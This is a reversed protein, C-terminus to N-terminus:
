LMFPLVLYLVINAIGHSLTVGVLSGTKKVIWGFFVGIAFVFAVDLPSLYGIHLAAFVGAVILWGREGLAEDASRQMVGRFVVEETFGTGVMLIIAPIILVPWSFTAILPEPRLIYYEAIGFPIGTFAVAVQLPIRNFNLGIDDRTFSLRRAVAFAALLLPVAIIAYWYIQPFNTLPMSLSVLRILPALALALYVKNLPEDARSSHFVLAILLAIHFIVGGLPDILAIILEAAVICALYFPVPWPIAPGSEYVLPGEEESELRHVEPLSSGRTHYDIRDPVTTTDVPPPTYLIEQSPVESSAQSTLEPTLEIPEESPSEPADDTVPIYQRILQRCRSCRASDIANITGCLPCKKQYVPM